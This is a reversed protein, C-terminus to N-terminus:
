VLFYANVVKGTLCSHLSDTRAECDSMLAPTKQRPQGPTHVIRQHESHGPIKLRELNKFYAKRSM